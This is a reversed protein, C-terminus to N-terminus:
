SPMYNYAKIMLARIHLPMRSSAHLRLSLHVINPARRHPTQHSPLFPQVRLPLFAPVTSAESERPEVRNRHLWLCCSRCRNQSGGVWGPVTELFPPSFPVSLLSRPENGARKLSDQRTPIEASRADPGTKSLLNSCLTWGPRHALM